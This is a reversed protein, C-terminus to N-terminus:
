LAGEALNAAKPRTGLAEATFLDPQLDPEHVREHM